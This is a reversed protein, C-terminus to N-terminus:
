LEGEFLRESESGLSSGFPSLLAAGDVVLGLSIVVVPVSVSNPLAPCGQSRLLEIGEVKWWFRMCSTPKWKAMPTSM